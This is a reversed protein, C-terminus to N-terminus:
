KNVLDTEKQYKEKSKKLVGNLFVVVAGLIVNVIAFVGAYKTCNPLVSLGSFLTILAPILANCVFRLVDYMKNSMNLVGSPVLEVATEAINNLKDSKM